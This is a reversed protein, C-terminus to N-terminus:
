LDYPIALVKKHLNKASQSDAGEQAAAQSGGAGTGGTANGRAVGQMAGSEVAAAVDAYGAATGITRNEKVGCNVYHSVIALVDEGFADKIDGYGEAYALPDFFVGDGRGEYVGTTLYHRIYADRDDGFAADLDGYAARYAEVDLILSIQETDKLRDIYTDVSSPAASAQMPLGAFMGVAVGLAVVKQFKM